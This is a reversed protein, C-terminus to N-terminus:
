LGKRKEDIDEKKIVRFSPPTGFSVTKRVDGPNFIVNSM